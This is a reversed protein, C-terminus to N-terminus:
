AVAREKLHPAYRFDSGQIHNQLWDLLFHLLQVTIAVRGNTFDEQFKLVQGVLTDHEAKHAAFDPYNHMRLLREEHAFHVTTYQVLRDLIRGLSAKGQGAEMASHLERAIAFLNEHQADVSAIAVSYNNNWEFM